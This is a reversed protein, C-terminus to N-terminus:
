FRKAFELNVLNQRYENEPNTSDQSNYDIGFSASATRGIQRQFLFSAQTLNDKQQETTFDSRQYHLDVRASTRPTFRWLCSAGLGSIENEDLAVQFQQRDNFANFSLEINRLTFALEGDFRQSFFVQDRFQAPDTTVGSGPTTPLTLQVQGATTFTETYAFNTSLIRGQFRWRFSGTKGFFREGYRAELENRRSPQWSIGVAWFSGDTPETLNTEFENNEYGMLATLRTTPTVLYGLDLGAREFINTTNEQVFEVHNNVYDLQWSFRGLGRGIRFQAANNNTDELASDTYRVIGGTYRLLAQVGGGIEQTWYPSVELTGVTTRNDTITVNNTPLTQTVDIVQQSITSSWDVFFSEGWARVNGRADLQNFTENASTDETHFINQMRYAINTKQRATDADATVSFNLQTAFDNEEAGKPALAANDTYTGTVEIGPEIAWTRRQAPQPYIDRSHGILALGLLLASLLRSLTRQRDDDRQALQSKM